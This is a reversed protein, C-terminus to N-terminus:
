TVNTISFTATLQGTVPTNNTVNTYASSKTIALHIANASIRSCTITYDASTYFNISASTNNVYGSIGRVYGYCQTCTITAGSPIGYTVPVEFHLTLSNNTLYGAFVGNGATYTGGESYEERQYEKWAYWQSNTYIRTWLRNTQYQILMQAKASTDAINSRLCTLIGYGSTIPLNSVYAGGVWYSGTQILNNADASGSVYSGNHGLLSVWDGYAGEGNSRAWVGIPNGNRVAIQSRGGTTNDWDMDIIHSDYPPKGTTMSSTALYHSMGGDGVRGLDASTPRSDFKQIGGTITETFTSPYYVQLKDRETSFGGIALGKGTHNVNLVRDATFVMVIESPINSTLLDSILLRIEYNKSIDFNGGGYVGGSTVNSISTWSPVPTVNAERYQLEVSISNRAPEGDDQLTTFRTNFTPVVYTGRSDITGDSTARQVGVRYIQPSSYDYVFIGLNYSASQFGRGDRVTASLTIAGATQLYDSTQTYTIPSTDFKSSKTIGAYIVQAYAIPASYKGSATVSTQVKSFGKVYIGWGDVVSNPNVMDVTFASITPRTTSNDPVSLYFTYDVYGVQQFNNLTIIRLTGVGDSSNTIQNALDYPPNWGVTDGSANEVATGTASGISYLITTRYQSTNYGKILHISNVTNIAFQPETTMVRDLKTLPLNFTATTTSTNVLADARYTEVRIPVYAKTTEALAVLSTPPTWTISKSSTDTILVWDHTSSADGTDNYLYRYRLGTSLSNSVSITSSEGITGNASTISSSPLTITLTSETSGIEVNNVSTTARLIGTATKSAPFQGIWNAYTDVSYTGNITTTLFTGSFYQTFEYYVSVSGGTPIGSITFSAPKGLVASANSITAPTSLRPLTVQGSVTGDKIYSSHGNTSWGGQMTISKTGDANHSITFTHDAFTILAKNRFDYGSKQMWSKNGNNYGVWGYNETSSYYTSLSQTAQAYLIMRVTSTNNAVSSGTVKWEIWTDVKSGNTGTVSGNIITYGSNVPTTRAM